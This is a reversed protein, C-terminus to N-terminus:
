GFKLPRPTMFQQVQEDTIEKRRQQHEAILKQLVIVLEKKLDGTLLDGSSYSNRLEKLKEDDEMFFKLYQYSVDIDCNGGTQRHEKLTKGGGSYAHHNIKYEIEAATDTLFISSNADSASMKSQAGQLAPFFISHLLACKPFNLRPAVDRTMRFFPDQDIACPILCRLEEKGSEKFIFPFSSSVAPAAQIAPFGIKGISDSDSLGFIAKVQNYTVCKQIRCINKYFNSCQAIYEFDSFIFTKEVDFGCAIIDKANEHALRNTEEPTLDKWLFKEDDTMQIVLPVNFVDQLWKTMMFPILHGLHMAESSPGRGTYLYFPKQQEYANLITELERHSFFIRRRIFHHVPRGILKQMKEVLDDTLPSSGFRVIIKDYDIGTMSEAKVTWPNVIDEDTSIDEQIKEDNEKGNMNLNAQGSM